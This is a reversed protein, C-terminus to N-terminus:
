VNFLADFEATKRAILSCLIEGFDRLSDTRLLEDPLYSQFPKVLETMKASNLIACLFHAEKTSAVNAWYLSNNIVARADTLRAAALHMGSATYVVRERSPSDCVIECPQAVSGTM